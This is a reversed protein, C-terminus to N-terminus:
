TAATTRTSGCPTTTSTSRTPHECCAIVPNMEFTKGGDISVSLLSAINYVRDANDPIPPSRPTTSPGFRSTTIRRQDPDLKRRRRRLAAHREQGAEVLAYVRGRQAPSPAFTIRGLEGAPLGDDETKRKWNAGGDWSIYMGSGPGGSKFFWPWRRHEWLSAYIKEPNFPDIKVDTGGTRTDVYLIKEWTEGGDTTKFIGREENESWLTGLAAVYAIDPNVPHLAIRNIRETGALGM